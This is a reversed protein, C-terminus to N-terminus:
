LIHRRVKPELTPGPSNRKRQYCTRQFMERDAQQICTWLKHVSTSVGSIYNSHFSISHSPIPHFRSSHFIPNFQFQISHFPFPVSRFPVFNSRFSIPISYHFVILTIKNNYFIYLHMDRIVKSTDFVVRQNSTLTVQGIPGPGERRVNKSSDEEGCRTIQRCTSETNDCFTYHLTLSSHQGNRMLPRFTVDTTGIFSLLM